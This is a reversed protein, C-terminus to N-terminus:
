PTKDAPTGSSAGTEEPIPSDRLAGAEQARSMMAAAIATQLDRHSKDRAAQEAERRVVLESITEDADYFGQLKTRATELRAELDAVEAVLAGVEENEEALAARRAELAQAAEEAARAHAAREDAMAQLRARYEDMRSPPRPGSPPAAPDISLVASADPGAPAPAPATEPAAEDAAAPLALAACALLSLFNKNM